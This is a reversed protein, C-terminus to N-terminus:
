LFDTDYSAGKKCIVRICWPNETKYVAMDTDERIYEIQFDHKTLIDKLYNLNTFNRYHDDGFYRQNITDKDSRTEICLYTNPRISKLFVDHDENTISHFTFRSYIMDYNSKDTTVFNDTVFQCNDISCPVFGSNDMGVTQYQKCLTYSDRGNGCGADLVCKFTKQNFHNLIFVCFDSCTQTHNQQYFKNWYQNQTTTNATM